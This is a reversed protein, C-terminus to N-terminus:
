KKHMGKKAVHYLLLEVKAHSGLLVMRLNQLTEPWSAHDSGMEALEEALAHPTHVVDMTDAKLIKTDATDGKPDPVPKSEVNGNGTAVVTALM